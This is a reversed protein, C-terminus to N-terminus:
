CCLVRWECFENTVADVKAVGSNMFFYICVILAECVSASMAGVVHVFGWTSNQWWTDLEGYGSNATFTSTARFVLKPVICKHKIYHKGERTPNRLQAIWHIQSVWRQHEPKSWEYSGLAWSKILQM